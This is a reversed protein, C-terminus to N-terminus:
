MGVLFPYTGVKMDSTAQLIFGFMHFHVHALSSLLGCIISALETFHAIIM